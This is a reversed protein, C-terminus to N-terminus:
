TKTNNNNKIIKKKTPTIITTRTTAKDHTKWKIKQKIKCTVSVVMTGSLKVTLALRVSSSNCKLGKFVSNFGM